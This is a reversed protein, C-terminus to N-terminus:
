RQSATLPYRTVLEEQWSYLDRLGAQREGDGREIWAADGGQFAELWQRAATQYHRRQSVALECLRQLSAPAPPAAAPDTNILVLLANGVSQRWENTRADADARSLLELAVITQMYTNQIQEDADFFATEESSLRHGQTQLFQSLTMTQPQSEAQQGGGTQALAPAPGSAMWGMFILVALAFPRRHL